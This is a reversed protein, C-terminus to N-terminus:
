EEKGPVNCVVYELEPTDHLIGGFAPCTYCTFLYHYGKPSEYLPCYELTHVPITTFKQVEMDIIKIVHPTTM